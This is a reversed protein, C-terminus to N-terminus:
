PLTATSARSAGTISTLWHAAVSDVQAAGNPTLTRKTQVPAAISHCLLRMSVFVFVYYGCTNGVVM